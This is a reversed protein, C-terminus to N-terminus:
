ANLGGAVLRRRRHHPQTRVPRAFNEGVLHHALDRRMRREASNHRLDRRAGMDLDDIQQNGARKTAGADRGLIEVAHRGRRPRAQDAANQDPQHRALAHRQRAALREDRDVVQLRVRQSRAQGGVDSEGIEHEDGRAPVRLDERDLADAIVIPKARGHVVRDAFREVLRGLQKPSGKGPPGATSAAASSPSGSRNASGRGSTPRGFASKESDPRFVATRSAASDTAGRRGRSTASRQAENWAATTSTTSSRMRMPSFSNRRRMPAEGRATTTAPPTAALAASRSASVRKQTSAPRGSTAGGCFSQVSLPAIIAHAPTSRSRSPIISPSSAGARGRQGSSGFDSRASLLLAQSLLRRDAVSNPAPAGPQPAQQGQAAAAAKEKAQENALHRGVICGGIAGLIAHHGAYHGAVGGVLAGKLCGKAEAPAPSIASALTLALTVLAILALKM